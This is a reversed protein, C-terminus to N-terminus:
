RQGTDLLLPFNLPFNFPDRIVSASRRVSDLKM